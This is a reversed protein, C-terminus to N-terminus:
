ESSLTLAGVRGPVSIDFTARMFVQWAIAQMAGVGEDLVASELLDALFAASEEYPTEAGAEVLGMWNIFAHELFMELYQLMAWQTETPTSPVTGTSTYDPSSVAIMAMSHRAVRINREIKTAFRDTPTYLDNGASVVEYGIPSDVLTVLKRRRFIEIPANPSAEFIGSYDAEGVAFEPSTDGTGSDLDYVGASSAVDKPVYADWLTDWEIQTDPDPLPIIYGSMGYMTGSTYAQGETGVFRCDLHVGNFRGGPPIPCAVLVDDAGAAVSRIAQKRAFLRM